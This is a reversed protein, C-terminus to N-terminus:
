PIPRPKPNDKAPTPPGEPKPPPVDRPERVPVDLPEKVPVDTPIPQRPAPMIQPEEVPHEEPIEPKIARVGRQSAWHNSRLIEDYITNNPSAWFGRCALVAFNSVRVM